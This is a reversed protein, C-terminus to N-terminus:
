FADSPTKKVIKKLEQVCSYGGFFSLSTSSSTKPGLFSPSHAM